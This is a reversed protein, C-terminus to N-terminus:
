YRTLEVKPADNGCTTCHITATGDHSRVVTFNMLARSPDIRRVQFSLTDGNVSLNLLLHAERAAVHATEEHKRVVLDLELTGGLSGSDDALTLTAGPQGDLEAHWIGLWQTYPTSAPAGISAAVLPAILPLLVRNM